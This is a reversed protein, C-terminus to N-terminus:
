EFTAWQSPNQPASNSIPSFPNSPNQLWSSTSSGFELGYEKLLDLEQQKDAAAQAETSRLSPPTFM